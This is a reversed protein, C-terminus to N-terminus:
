FYGQDVYVETNAVGAVPDYSTITGAAQGGAPILDVFGYTGGIIAGASDRYIAYAYTTELDIEYTSAVTFTTETSYEDSQTSVGSVTFSGEPASDEYGEEFSFELRGIGNPVEDIIDYGIGLTEGANIRGVSHSDSTIVTDTTDYIAVDVSFNVRAEDSTNEIIFGYGTDSFGEDVVELGDVATSGGTSGGSGPDTTPTTDTTGGDETTPPQETTPATTPDDEDDGGSLVVILIVVLAVAVAGIAIYLPTKNQGSGPAQPGSPAGYPGPPGAPPFGGSPAGAPPFGGSPPGAPPFAGGPGPPFGGPPAM